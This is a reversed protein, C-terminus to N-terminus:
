AGMLLFPSLIDGTSSGASGTYGVGASGTYGTGTSGTYGATGASGTYGSGASGTYGNSGNLGAPIERIQINVASIPATTFTLV